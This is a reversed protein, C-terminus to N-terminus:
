PLVRLKVNRYAVESGHEQLGIYGETAKGYSPWENFKSKAVRQQWDASGLEYDVIKQGNLWHEVHNGHVVIRTTNWEGVPKVVGRPAPHLGYNAGASTLDSRGDNHAQDDLIQYEPAYHYIPGDGEIARYFIGSNGGPAIKWELQLDFNRFRDTTVIDGAEATRTLAGDVVSWGAPMTQMGYGRWGNLTKGDFLLRWGEQQERATLANQMTAATEAAPMADADTRAPGSCAVASVALLCSAAIRAARVM